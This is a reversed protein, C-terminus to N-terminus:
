LRSVDRRAFLARPIASSGRMTIARAKQKARKKIDLTEHRSGPTFTRDFPQPILASGSECFRSSVSPRTMQNSGSVGERRCADDRRFSHLCRAKTRALRRLREM